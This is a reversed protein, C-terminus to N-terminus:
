SMKPPDIKKGRLKRAKKDRPYLFAKVQVGLSFDLSRQNVIIVILSLQKFGKVIVDKQM